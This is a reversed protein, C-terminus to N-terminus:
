ATDESFLFIDVIILVGMLLNPLVNHMLESSRSIFIFIVLGGLGLFLNFVGPFSYLLRHRYKTHKLFYSVLAVILAIM